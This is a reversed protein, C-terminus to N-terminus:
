IVPSIAEDAAQLLQRFQFVDRGILLRSPERYRQHNVPDRGRPKADRRCGDIVSQVISEALPLNVRHIRLHILVMDHELTLRLKLEIGVLQIM